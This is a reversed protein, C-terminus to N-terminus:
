GDSVRPPPSIDFGEIEGSRPNKFGFPPVDYKVGITIEGEDQLRKMTTGAAFTRAETTATAAGNGAPEDDEDDGCGGGALAGLALMLAAIWRWSMGQM